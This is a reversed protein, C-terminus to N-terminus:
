QKGKIQEKMEKVKEPNEQRWEEWSEDELKFQIWEKVDPKPKYPSLRKGCRPCLDIELRPHYERHEECFYLGCGRDGGYPDSGCVYSLGRDIENECGPFDCIAPVGYGIDRDWKSDYGISWGM